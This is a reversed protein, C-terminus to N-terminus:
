RFATWKRKPSVRKTVRDCLYSSRRDTTVEIEGEGTAKWEKFSAGDQLVKREKGELNTVKFTTKGGAKKDDGPLLAVM